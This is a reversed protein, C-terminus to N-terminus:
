RHVRIPRWARPRAASALEEAVHEVALLVEDGPPSGATFSRGEIAVLRLHEPLRGFAEVLRLTAVIGLDRDTAHPGCPVELLEAANWRHVTGPAAGTVVSDVLVVEPTDWGTRALLSAPETGVRVAVVGPRGELLDAVLWGAAGDGRDPHGIGVVTLTTTQHTSFTREATM